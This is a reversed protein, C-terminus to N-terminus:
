DAMTLDVSGDSEYSQDDVRQKVIALVELAGTVKLYVEKSRMLSEEASRIKESLDELQTQLQEATDKFIEEM